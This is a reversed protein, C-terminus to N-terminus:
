ALIPSLYENTAVSATSSTSGSLTIIEYADEQALLARVLSNNLGHGSKYGVFEGVIGYGALFLDGVADLIKHRVFEDSYRLGDPNIIQYEDIVVANDVSGGLALQSAHLQELDKLFGFTRAKSIESAFSHASFDISYSQNQRRIVPHAFDITFSVKFGSYPQFRAIKGDERVEVPRKIRILKKPANQISIGASQILFVFPASSGDMIPIEENNLDIFLNDIGLGAVAALLHEVTSVKAGNEELLTCMNTSTVRDAKAYIARPPTFDNRLFVIGTNVPAPRLRISVKKGSHLGIGTSEIVQAITRQNIVCPGREIVSLVFGYM